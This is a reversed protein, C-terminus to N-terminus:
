LTKNKNYHINLKSIFHNTTVLFLWIDFNTVFINLYLCIIQNKKIKSKAELM